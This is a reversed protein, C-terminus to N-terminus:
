NRELQAEMKKLRVQEHEVKWQQHQIRLSTLVRQRCDDCFPASFDPEDAPPPEFRFFALTVERETPKGCLCTTTAM